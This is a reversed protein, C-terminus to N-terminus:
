GVLGLWGFRVRGVQGVLGLGVSWVRGLRGFGVWGVLGSGVSWVWYRRVTGFNEGDWKAM